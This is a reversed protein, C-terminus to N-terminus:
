SHSADIHVEIKVNLNLPTPTPNNTPAGLFILVGISLIKRLYLSTAQQSKKQPERM